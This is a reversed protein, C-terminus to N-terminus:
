GVRLPRRNDLSSILNVGVVMNILGHRYFLAGVELVKTSNLRKPLHGNNFFFSRQKEWQSSIGYRWSSEITVRPRQQIEPENDSAFVLNLICEHHLFADLLM